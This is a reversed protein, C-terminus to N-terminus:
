NAEVYVLRMLLLSIGPQSKESWKRVWNSSLEKSIDNLFCTGNMLAWSKCVRRHKEEESIGMKAQYILYVWLLFSSSFM